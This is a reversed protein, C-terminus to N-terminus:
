ARSAGTITVNTSLLTTLIIQLPAKKKYQFLLLSSCSLCYINTEIVCQLLNKILFDNEQTLPMIMKKLTYKQLNFYLFAFVNDFVCNEGFFGTSFCAHPQYFVTKSRDRLSSIVFIQQGTSKKYIAAM